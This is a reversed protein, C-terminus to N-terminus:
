YFLVPFYVDGPADGDGAIPMSQPPDDPERLLFAFSGLKDGIACGAIREGPILWVFFRAGAARLHRMTVPQWRRRRAIEASCAPALRRPAGFQLMGGRLAPTVGRPSANFYPKLAHVGVIQSSIDFYVFGGHLLFCVEPNDFDYEDDNM